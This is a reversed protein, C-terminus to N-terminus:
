VNEEGFSELLTALESETLAEDDDTDTDKFLVNFTEDDLITNTYGLRHLASRVETKGITGLGNLKVDVGCIQVIKDKNTIASAPISSSYISDSVAAHNTADDSTDLSRTAHQHSKPSAYLLSSSPEARASNINHTTTDRLQRPSSSHHDYSGRLPSAYLSASPIVSSKSQPATGFKRPRSGHSRMSAWQALAHYQVPTFEADMVDDDDDLLLSASRSACHIASALAKRHRTEEYSPSSGSPTLRLLQCRARVIALPFPLAHDASKPSSTEKTGAVASLGGSLLLDVFTLGDADVSEPEATAATTDTLGAVLQQTTPLIEIQNSVTQLSARTRQRDASIPLLASGLLSLLPDGEHFM